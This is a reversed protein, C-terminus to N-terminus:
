HHMSLPIPNMRVQSGRQARVDETCHVRAAVDTYCALLNPSSERLEAIETALLPNGVRSPQVPCAVTSPHSTSYRLLM